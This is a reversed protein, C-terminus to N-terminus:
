ESTLVNEPLPVTGEWVGGVLNSCHAFIASLICWFTGNKMGFDFLNQSVGGETSLPLDGEWVAGLLINNTYQNALKLFFYNHGVM